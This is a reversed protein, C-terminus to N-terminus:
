VIELCLPLLRFSMTFFPVLCFTKSRFSVLYFSVSGFSVKYYPLLCFSVSGFSLLYVLALIPLPVVVGKDVERGDVGDSPQDVAPTASEL